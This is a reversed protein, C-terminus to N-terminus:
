PMLTSDCSENLDLSFLQYLVLQFSQHYETRIKGSLSLLDQCVFLCNQLFSTSSQYHETRIKGSVSLLDQWVFLCNQLFSTSIVPSTRDKDNWLGLLIDTAMCFTLEALTKDEKFIM